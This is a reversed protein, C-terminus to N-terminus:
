KGEFATPINSIGPERLAATPSYRQDKRTLLALCPTNPHISSLNESSPIMFEYGQFTLGEIGVRGHSTSPAWDRSWLLFQPARIHQKVLSGISCPFKLSVCTNNLYHLRSVHFGLFHPLKDDSM